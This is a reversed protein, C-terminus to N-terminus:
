TSATRRTIEIRGHPLPHQAHVEGGDRPETTGGDRVHQAGTVARDDVYRRALGLARARSERRVDGALAPEVGERPGDRDLVPPLRDAAVRDGDAVDDVLPAVRAQRRGPAGLTPGH